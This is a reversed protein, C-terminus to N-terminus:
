AATFSKSASSSLSCLAPLARAVSLHFSWFLSRFLRQRDLDGDCWQVGFNWPPTVRLRRRRRRRRQHASFRVSFFVVRKSEGVSPPTTTVHADVSTRMMGANRAEQKLFLDVLHLRLM